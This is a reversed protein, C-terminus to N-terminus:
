PITTLRLERRVRLFDETADQVGEPELDSVVPVGVVGLALHDKAGLGEIGGKRALAPTTRPLRRRERSACTAWATPARPLIRVFPACSFTTVNSARWRSLHSRKRSTRREIFQCSLKTAGMPGSPIDSERMHARPAPHVRFWGGGLSAGPTGRSAEHVVSLCPSRTPHQSHGAPGHLKLSSPFVQSNAARAVTARKQASSKTV